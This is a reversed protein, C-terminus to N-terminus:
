WLDIFKGVAEIDRYLSQFEKWGHPHQTLLANKVGPLPKELIKEIELLVERAPLSEKKGQLWALGRLTRVLRDTVDLELREILKEKGSSALLGQRMGILITKLEREVQLRVHNEDFSLDKFYNEGWLVLHCQQIEIMELPFTDLSAKIYSPTMILPASVRAKGLKVGNQSLRRLMELDVTELVLVNTATNQAKDFHGSVIAGFLTLSLANAGAIEKVLEGYQHLPKRMSEPVKELCEMGLFGTKEVILGKEKLLFRTEPDKVFV